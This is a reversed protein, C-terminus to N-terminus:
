PQVFKTKGNNKIEKITEMQTQSCLNSCFQPSNIGSDVNMKLNRYDVKNCDAFTIEQEEM